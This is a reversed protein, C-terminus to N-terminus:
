EIIDKIVVEDCSLDYQALIIDSDNASEIGISDMRIKSIHCKTCRFHGRKPGCIWTHTVDNLPDMVVLKEASAWPINLNVKIDFKTPDYPDSRVRVAPQELFIGFSRLKIEVADQIHNTITNNIQKGLFSKYIYEQIYKYLNTGYTPKPDTECFEPIIFKNKSM